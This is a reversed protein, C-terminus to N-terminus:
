GGSACGEWENRIRGDFGVNDNRVLHYWLSLLIEVAIVIRIMIRNERKGCQADDVSSM